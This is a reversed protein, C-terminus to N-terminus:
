ITSCDIKDYDTHTGVWRIYVLEPTFMVVVVLRCKNGKINFVYHQNGVYDASPFDKRMDQFNQWKAQSVKQHWRELAIRCDAHGDQEYFNKLRQKSIIRM